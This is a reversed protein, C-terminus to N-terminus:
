IPQGYTDETEPSTKMKTIVEDLSVLKYDCVNLCVCLSKGYSSLARHTHGYLHWAGRASHPWSRMPYHCLVIPKCGELNHLIHISDDVFTIDSKVKYVEPNKWWKGDHNGQICVINGNLKPLVRVAVGLKWFFDGLHYVTDEPQVTSNWMYILKTEMDELDEFPRNDLRLINRHGFHFDSTFYIM